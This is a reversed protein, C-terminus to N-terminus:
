NTQKTIQNTTKLTNNKLSNRNSYIIHKDVGVETKYKSLYKYEVECNFGCECM